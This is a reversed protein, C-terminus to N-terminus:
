INISCVWSFWISTSTPEILSKILKSSFQLLRFYLFATGNLQTQNWDLFKSIQVDEGNAIRALLKAYNEEFIAKHAEYEDGEYPCQTWACFDEYDYDPDIGQTTVALVFCLLIALNAVRRM